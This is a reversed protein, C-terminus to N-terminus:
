RTTSYSSIGFLPLTAMVIAHLWGVSAIMATIRFTLHNVYLARKITFWREVTLLCLVFISLQTSFITVFGAVKCGVGSFIPTPLQSIGLSASRRYEGDM